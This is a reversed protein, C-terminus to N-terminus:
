YMRTVAACVFEVAVHTGTMETERGRAVRGPRNRIEQSPADLSDGSGDFHVHPGVRDVGPPSLMRLGDALPRPAIVDSTMAAISTTPTTTTGPETVPQAAPGVVKMQPLDPSASVSSLGTLVFPSVESTVVCINLRRTRIFGPWVSMSGSRAVLQDTDGSPRTQVNLSRWPTVNWSPVGHFASAAFNLKSRQASGFFGYWATM